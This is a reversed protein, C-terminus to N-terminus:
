DDLLAAAETLFAWLGRLDPLLLAFPRGAVTAFALYARGTTAACEPSSLEPFGVGAPAEYIEATAGGEKRSFRYLRRYGARGAEERTVSVPKWPPDPPPHQEPVPLGCEWPRWHGTPQRLWTPLGLAAPQRTPNEIETM